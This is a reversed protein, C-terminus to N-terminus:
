YILVEVDEFIFMKEKDDEDMYAWYKLKGLSVVTVSHFQEGQMHIVGFNADEEGHGTHNKVYYNM